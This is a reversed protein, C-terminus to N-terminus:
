ESTIMLLRLHLEEEGVCRILRGEGEGRGREEIKKYKKIIREKTSEQRWAAVGDSSSSAEVGIM